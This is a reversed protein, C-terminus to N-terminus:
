GGRGRQGQESRRCQGDAPRSNKLSSSLSPSPFTRASSTLAASRARLRGSRSAPSKMLDARPPRQHPLATSHAARNRGEFRM